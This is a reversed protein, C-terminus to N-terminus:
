VPHHVECNRKTEPNTANELEQTLMAFFAEIRRQDEAVVTGEIRVIVRGAQLHLVGKLGQVEPGNEPRQARENEM